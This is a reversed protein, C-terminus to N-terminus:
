FTGIASLGDLVFPVVLKIIVVVSFPLFSLMQTLASQNRLTFETEEQRQKMYYSREEGLDAFAEDAPVKDCTILGEILHEFQASSEEELVLELSKVGSEQYLDVAKEVATKFCFSFDEMNRLLNEITMQKINVLMLIITQLDLIESEKRHQYDNHKIIVMAEPLASGLAVALIFIIIGYYIRLHIESVAIVTIAGAAVGFFIRKRYHTILSGCGAEEIFRAKKMSKEYSRYMKRQLLGNIGMDIGHMFHPLKVPASVNVNNFEAPFQFCQVIYFCVCVMIFVIATGAMGMMGDYYPVLSDSVGRAWHEIPRMLFFPLFSIIGLMAFENKRKQMLILEMRVNEKIYSINMLFNSYGNKKNDGYTDTMECIMYLQALHTTEISRVYQSLYEDRGGSLANKDLLENLLNGHTAMRTDKEDIAKYVAIELDKTSAYINGLRTLYTLLQKKLQQQERFFIGYVVYRQVLIIICLCFIAYAPSLGGFSFLFVASILGSVIIVAMLQMIRKQITLNQFPYIASFYGYLRERYQSFLGSRKWLGYLFSSM